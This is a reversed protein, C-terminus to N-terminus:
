EYAMAAVLEFLAFVGAASRHEFAVGAVLLRGDAGRGPVPRAWAVRARLLLPDWLTPAMFSLTVIDGPHVSEDLTVRAGGLGLDEVRAQRQWGTDVHTVV